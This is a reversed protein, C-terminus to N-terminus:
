NRLDRRLSMCVVSSLRLISAGWPNETAAESADLLSAPLDLRLLEDKGWHGVDGTVAVSGFDWALCRMALDPLLDRRFDGSKDALIVLALRALLSNTELSSPCSTSESSSLCYQSAPDFADSFFHTASSARQAASVGSSCRCSLTLARFIQPVM